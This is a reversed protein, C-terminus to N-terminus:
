NKSRHLGLTPRHLDNGLFTLLRASILKCRYSRSSCPHFNSNKFRAFSNARKNLLRVSWHQEGCQLSFLLKQSQTARTEIQHFDFALRWLPVALVLLSWFSLDLPWFGTLKLPATRFHSLCTCFCTAQLVCLCRSSSFRAFAFFLVPAHSTAYNRALQGWVCWIPDLSSPSRM